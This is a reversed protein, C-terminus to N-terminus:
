KMRRRLALMTRRSKRNGSKHVAQKLQDIQKKSQEVLGHKKKYAEWDEDTMEPTRAHVLGARKLAEYDENM